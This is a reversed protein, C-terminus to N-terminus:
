RILIRWLCTAKATQILSPTFIFHPNIKKIQRYKKRTKKFPNQWGRFQIRYM